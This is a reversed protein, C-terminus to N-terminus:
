KGLAMTVQHDNQRQNVEQPELEPTWMTAKIHVGGIPPPACGGAPDEMMPELPLLVYQAILSSTGLSFVPLPFIDSGWSLNKAKILFSVSKLGNCHLIGEFSTSPILVLSYPLYHVLM